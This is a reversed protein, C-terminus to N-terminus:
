RNLRIPVTMCNLQCWPLAILMQEFGRQFCNVLKMMDKLDQSALRIRFLILNFMMQIKMSIWDSDFYSACVDCEFLNFDCEVNWNYICEQIFLVDM